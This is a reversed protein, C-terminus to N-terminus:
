LARYGVRAFFKAARWDPRLSRLSPRRVGGAFVLDTVENERFLGLATGGAALRCWAHPVDAVTQQEAEGELALVFVDVRADRCADVLRRPLEGSGAVIGIKIAMRRKATRGKPSASRVARIRGSSPSSTPSRALGESVSPRRM